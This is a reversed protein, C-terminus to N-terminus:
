KRDISVRAIWPCHFIFHFHGALIRFIEMTVRRRLIANVSIHRFEGIQIVLHWPYSGVIPTDTAHIRLPKGYPFPANRLFYLGMRFIVPFHRNIPIAYGMAAPMQRKAWGVHGIAICRVQVERGDIQRFTSIGTFHHHITELPIHERKM